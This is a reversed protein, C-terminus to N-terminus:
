TLKGERNPSRMVTLMQQKQLEPKKIYWVPLSEPLQRFQSVTRIRDNRASKFTSSYHRIIHRM